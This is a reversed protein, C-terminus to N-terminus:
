SSAAQHCGAKEGKEVIDGGNQIVHGNTLVRLGRKTMVVAGSGTSNQPGHTQWPQEYDPADSVTLVKVVSQLKRTLNQRM